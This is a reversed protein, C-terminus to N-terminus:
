HVTDRGEGPPTVGYLGSGTFGRPRDYFHDSRTASVCTLDSPGNPRLLFANRSLLACFYFQASFCGRVGFRAFAAFHVRDGRAGSSLAATVRPMGHVVGTGQVMGGRAVGRRRRMGRAGGEEFGASRASQRSRSGGCWLRRGRAIDGGGAAARVRRTKEQIRVIMTRCCTTTSSSASSRSSTSNPPEKVQSVLAGHHTLLAAPPQADRALAALPVACDACMPRLRRVAELQEARGDALDQRGLTASGAEIADSIKGGNSGNIKEGASLGHPLAVCRSRAVRATRGAREATPVLLVLIPPVLWQRASPTEHLGGLVALVPVPVPTM